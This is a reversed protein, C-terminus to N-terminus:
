KNTIEVLVVTINDHGGGSKALEILKDTKQSLSIKLDLVDQIQIDDVMDTLGDSCLLFIDGQNIGGIEYDPMMGDVGLAQYIVNRYSKERAEEPTILGQDIQQQILTHDHTLQKLEGSYYRYVRSDGIHGIFFGDDFFALLEATCGMGESDPNKLIYKKIKKHSQHFAKKVLKFTENQSRKIEIEIGSDTDTELYDNENEIETNARIFINKLLNLIISMFSCDRKSFVECSTEAFIQSAVEGAKEGGMGDAVLFFGRELNIFFTDENNSRVLGIDSKGFCVIKIM